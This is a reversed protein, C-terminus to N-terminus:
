EIWLWTTIVVSINYLSHAAVCSFYSASRSPGNRFWLRALFLGGVGQLLVSFYGYGNALGFAIFSWSLVVFLFEPKLTGEKDSLARCPGRFIIEELFPAGFIIILVQMVVFPSTLAQGLSLSHSQLWYNLTAGMVPMSTGFDVSALGIAKFFSVVTLMGFWM